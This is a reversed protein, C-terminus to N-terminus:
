QLDDIAPMSGYNCTINIGELIEIRDNESKQILLDWQSETGEFYITKFKHRQNIGFCSIDIKELSQPLYM